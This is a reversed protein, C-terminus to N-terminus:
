RVGEECTLLFQDVGGSTHVLEAAAVAVALVSVGCLIEGTHSVFLDHLYGYLAFLGMKLGNARSKKMGIENLYM